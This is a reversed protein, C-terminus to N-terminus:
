IDDYTLDIEKYNVINVEGTLINKLIHSTTNSYTKNKRWPKVLIFLYGHGSTLYIFYYQRGIKYDELKM